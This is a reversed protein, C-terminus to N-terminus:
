NIYEDFEGSELIRNIRASWWARREESARYKAIQKQDPTRSLVAIEGNKIELEENVIDEILLSATGLGCALDVNMTAALALGHSLGIGSELASSVVVPLGVTKAIEEAKKRREEAAKGTIEDIKKRMKREQLISVISAAVYGVAFVAISLLYAFTWLKFEWESM